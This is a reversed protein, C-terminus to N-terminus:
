VVVSLEKFKSPVNGYEKAFCRSFYKTDNFGSEFAVESVTLDTTLLMKAAYQLKGKRMFDVAKMGTIEKIRRYLSSRSMNMNEALHDLKFHTDSGKEHIVKICNQIFEDEKKEKSKIGGVLDFNGFEEKLKKRSKVLNQIQSIFATENFPKSIYGDAGTDFGRIRSENSDLATLLIVPIHFTLPNEKLHQCLEIGDMSPMYIDSVVIDPRHKLALALGEEGNEAELVSYFKGLMNSIVALIEKNDEVVLVQVQKGPGKLEMLRERELIEQTKESLESDFNQPITFYFTSGEQFKSTVKIEGQHLQILEKCIALGLGTSLEDDFNTLHNVRYFRDFVFPIDKKAIGKGTDSVAVTINHHLKKTELRIKGGKVNYKIANSLLNAIVKELAGPDFCAELPQTIDTELQLGKNEIELRFSDVVENLLIGLDGKRFHLYYKNKEIKQFNLIEESLKVLNKANKQVISLKEAGQDLKENEVLDDLPHIVLSLANRFDHSINSFFRLKTETAEEAMRLVRLLQDRQETIRLTQKQITKSKLNLLRHARSKKNLYYITMAMIVVLLGSIIISLFSVTNQKELLFTVKGLQDTQKDIRDQTLMIQDAQHKLTLANSADIRITKLYNLKSIPKREFATLALQIAKDGGTPYFFTGDLFGNLVMDIGGKLGLNSGKVPTNLGDVGLIFPKIGHIQTSLYAGYAMPDNYAFILDFDKDEYFLDNTISRARDHLWAGELTKITIEPYAELVEHFGQGREMAPTSGQLGTIELIRGKGGLLQAAYHAAGIGIDVNEGGLFATYKQSNIKRDIIIVPIGMEFVEEVVPTLPAAENPSVILIDIGSDVLDRIDQIQQDSVDNADKIILDIDYGPHFGIERRMEENMTQRWLDGTTCQSFGIRIPKSEEPSLTCALLLFLPLLTLRTM